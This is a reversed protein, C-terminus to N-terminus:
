KYFSHGVSDTFIHKKNRSAWSGGKCSDFYLAGNVTNKIQFAYECALITTQTVEVKKYRGDSYSSFQKPEKLIGILTDPFNNNYDIYLRNFISSAVNVKPIFNRDGTVEAEVIEFLFRLEEGNFCDYITTEPEIWESYERRIEKYNVFWQLEDPRSLGKLKEKYENEKTENITPITVIKVVKTHEYNNKVKKVISIGEQNLSCFGETNEDNEENDKNISESRGELPVVLLLIFCIFIFTTLKRGM